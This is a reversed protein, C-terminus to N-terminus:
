EKQQSLGRKNKQTKRAANQMKPNRSNKGVDKGLTTPLWKASFLVLLPYMHTHRKTTYQHQRYVLYNM